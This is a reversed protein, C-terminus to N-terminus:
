VSTTYLTLLFVVFRYGVIIGASAAVMLAVAAARPMGSIGFVVRTASDLYIAYVSMQVLGLGVDVTSGSAGSAGLRVLLYSVPLALCFLLLVFACFHLAFVIHVVFPRRTRLLLLLTLLGFPPVMLIIFSKANIAVARDFSPAYSALTTHLDALRNVVAERAFGSYFQQSMHSSLSTSFVHSHALSQLAFFVLNAILFLPLPGVFPKRQGQWYAHTLSGPRLMLSRFTRLFRGDLHAITEVMHEALGVLTLDHKGPRHEGCTPCFRTALPLQCTPCVWSSLDEVVM